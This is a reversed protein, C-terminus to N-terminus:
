KWRHGAEIVLSSSALMTLAMIIRFAQAKFMPIM